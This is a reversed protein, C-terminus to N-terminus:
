RLTRALTFIRIKKQLHRQNQDSRHDTIPDPFKNKSLNPDSRFIFFGSRTM